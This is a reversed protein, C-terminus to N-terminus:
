VRAALSLVPEFIWEILRRRELLVDAEIQMGPALPQAQGYARVAQERLSVTIRYMPEGAVTATNTVVGALPLTALEASQLPTRSVQLVQGEQHGFKQYPFAQYRLLVTQNPRLFGAASSPAFLHAQLQAGQPVLSALTVSPTVWQGPEALLATVVGDQPARVVVHQRAENEASEQALSALDRELLGQEAQTKLPLERRQAQLADLERLQASRQRELNQLQAQLGLVDEAKAQVQAQSIFNQARLAELRAQAERALDLRQQHLKAESDLQAVERRMDEIRRDLNAQQERLLQAKHRVSDQLSRERAQLSGQVAAQTDGSLTARDVSVVFLVDGAKVQQGEAARREVLTGTQPSVLRVVGREPVLYGTVRAKRTYQGFALFSAVALALVAALIVLVSLSVPRVLQITGLWAHRRGEIVEPRFLSPM